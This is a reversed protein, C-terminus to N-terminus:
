LTTFFGCFRQPGLINFGEAQPSFLANPSLFLGYTRWGQWVVEETIMGSAPPIHAKEPTWKASLYLKKLLITGASLISSGVKPKCFMLPYIENM